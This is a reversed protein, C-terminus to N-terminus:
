AAFRWRLAFLAAFLAADTAEMFVERCRRKKGGEGFHSAAPKTGSRSKVRLRTIPQSSDLNSFFALVSQRNRYTFNHVATYCDQM